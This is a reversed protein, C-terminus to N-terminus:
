SGEQLQKLLRQAEALDASSLGGIRSELDLARGLQDIAEDKQGLEAFARALHFRTAVGSPATVRYLTICKTFDEIAKDFEGLRYYIVGRTDVLDVYDPAITLGRQALELAQQGKGQKECMIWALNNIAILNDPALELLQQYLKASEASRGTVELLIALASMAEVSDPDNSLILRLIDEAIKKAQGDELMILDRAVAIPTRNDKPHKQYWDIVKQNLQSWLEEDKLIQAQALFPDPDNPESELLADLEKLAKPRSGSKYLAVALAVNIKRRVSADCTTLCRRLLPLAKKPEGAAVYTNALFLSAGVDNPDLECLVKLTPIALIPSRVAEARAKFLLLTKDQPKHVLGRYAADIAKGPQGQRLMIEGLLVWAESVEPQEETIKQVIQEANGIALATGEALTSHAKLLRLEIDEPSSELANSLLDRGERVRDTDRSALFLAIARKQIQVSNPALSLAQQMDAAAEDPRGVSSHFDSRAVWVAVNNPEIVAAHELDKAAKDIQGLATYTRARLIYASAENLRSVIQECLRLAEAPDDQRIKLQVQAATVSLSNPDQIKLKALLDGAEDFRGQQMKLLALSLCATQNNPDNSLLDQLIDSASDLQGRRLYSQLQLKQLQPHYLKQRSARNLVQEAEDYENASYLAAVTPIIIRLDDPSRSLAERYTSIALSLEGAREYSGALLIRSAQDSPNALMNEQLLTVIQPYRDKFDGAAFWIRAQEYRWQWGDEGELSKIENVLHQAKERDKVVQECRLLRRKIPVDGALKGALYSLWECTKEKQDWRDYLDALLFCLKRRAFPEEIRESAERIVRECKEREDQRALLLALYVAPEVADPSEEVMENLMLIAESMRDQAALLEVEAMAIKVPSLRAKKLQTVLKEADAFEGQQLAVQFQLLKVDDAIGPTKELASLKTKMDHWMRANARGQSSSAVLLQMQAQLHLLASEPNEQSLRMATAAHEAAEAWDGTQTLLKALALHGDLFRPEESILTRLQWLASQTNGLSTLASALALRVQPSKNGLQMSERWSKVADFLRGEEGAILGRLFAVAAPAIDRQRLKAICDNADDLERSRIFLETAMLMFDWPDSSLATLGTKAISSMKEQSQSKLALEAWTQWLGQDTPAAERVVSLHGEAKDLANANILEKALRLRVAPDSLDQKEARELDALAESMNGSRQYFGARAIYAMASSPNNKVAENFWQSPLEPLEEPRQEILQGLTEYTLIQEPHGQLISKLEVAAESFRRQGAMALALMRRLEPDPNVQLQRRAILEAEGPMRMGFYVEILRMAAESNGKDVRLVTRYAAIAHQVNNRQAPRIKLHADAYKLLVPVDEREMAIYRGLNEAAEEWRHEDYAENGLVLGREARNTRRWQRLGFTTAGLVVLGMVLVIALKWNFYRGPM